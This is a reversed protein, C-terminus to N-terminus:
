LQNTFLCSSTLEHDKKIDMVSGNEFVAIINSINEAKPEVPRLRPIVLSRDTMPLITIITIINTPRIPM